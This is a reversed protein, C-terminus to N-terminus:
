HAHALFGQLTKQTMMRQITGDAVFGAFAPKLVQYELEADFRHVIM